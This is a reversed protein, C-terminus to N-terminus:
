QAVIAGSGDVADVSNWVATVRLPPPPGRLAGTLVYGDKPAVAAVAERVDSAYAYADGYEVFGRRPLM